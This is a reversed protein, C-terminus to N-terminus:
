RPPKKLEVSKVHFVLAANAPITGFEQDRYCLHPSARFRRQGGVRMGELGYRFGAIIERRGITMVSTQDQAIFDGRNLEIDYCIRVRDGQQLECGPGPIDEIIKIGPRSM